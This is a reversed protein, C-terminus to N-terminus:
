SAGISQRCVDRRPTYILESIQQIAAAVADGPDIGGIRVAGAIDGILLFSSGHRIKCPHNIFQEVADDDQDGSNVPAQLFCHQHCTVGDLQHVLPQNLVGEHRDDRLRVVTEAKGDTHHEHDRQQYQYGGCTSPGYPPLFGAAGGGAPTFWISSPIGFFPPEYGPDTLNADNTAQCTAAAESNLTGGLNFAYLLFADSTGDTLFYNTQKNFALYSTVTAYDLAWEGKLSLNTNEQENRPKVNNIYRFNHDNPDAYFADGVFPAVDALAIAANVAVTLDPAAVYAATTAFKM